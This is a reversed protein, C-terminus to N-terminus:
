ESPPEPSESDGQLWSVLSHDAGGSPPGIVPIRPKEAVPKPGGRSKPAVPIRKPNPSAAAPPGPEHASARAETVEVPRSLSDRPTTASTADPVEKGAPSSVAEVLLAVQLAVEYSAVAQALGCSVLDDEGRSQRRRQIVGILTQQQKLISEPQM